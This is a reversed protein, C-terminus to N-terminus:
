PPPDGGRNWMVNGLGDWPDRQLQSEFLTSSGIFQFMSTSGVRPRGDRPPAAPDTGPHEVGRRDFYTVETLTGIVTYRDPGPRLSLEAGDLPGAGTGCTQKAHTASTIWMTCGHVYWTGLFWKASLDALVSRVPPVPVRVTAVMAGTLAETERAPMAWTEIALWSDFDPFMVLQYQISTDSSGDAVVETTVTRVGHVDETPRLRTPVVEGPPGGSGFVVAWGAGGIPDDCLYVNSRGAGVVAVLGERRARCPSVLRALREVRATAPVEVSLRSPAFVRTTSSSAGPETLPGPVITTTSSRPRGAGTSAVPNSAASTSSGSARPAHASTCAGAGLILAVTV